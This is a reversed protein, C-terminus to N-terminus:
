YLNDPVAKAGCAIALDHWAKAQRNAMNALHVRIATSAAPTTWNLPGDPDRSVLPYSKVLPLVLSSAGLPVIKDPRLDAISFSITITRPDREGPQSQVEQITASCNSFNVQFSDTLDGTNFHQTVPPDLHSTIWAQIESIPSSAQQQAHTAACFSASALALLCFPFVRAKKM